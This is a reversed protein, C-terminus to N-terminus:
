LVEMQGYHLNVGAPKETVEEGGTLILFQQVADGLEKEYPGGDRAARLYRGDDLKIAWFTQKKPDGALQVTIRCYPRGQHHTQHTM